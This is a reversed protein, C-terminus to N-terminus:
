QGVPLFEIRDADEPPVFTFLLDPLRPSFDWGSLNATFQPAGPLNKYTLVVKRIVLQRGEEIWAQVDVDDHTLVLHHCSVGGALHRGAYTGLLTGDIWATYPDSLYLTSLPITVGLKENLKAVLEDLTAPADWTSYLNETTNMLSFKKGDYWASSSRLDGQYVTRIMNPRKVAADFSAAFQLKQGTSLVDDVTIDAHFTYQEATKLYEATAKLLQDVRPEIPTPEAALAPLASCVSALLFATLSSLAAFKRVSM